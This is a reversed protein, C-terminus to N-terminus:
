ILGRLMRERDTAGLLYMEELLIEQEDAYADLYEEFLQLLEEGTNKLYETLKTELEYRTNRKIPYEESNKVAENQPNMYYNKYFSQMFCRDM